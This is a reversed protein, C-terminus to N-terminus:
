WGKISCLLVWDITLHHQQRLSLKKYDHSRPKEWEVGYFKSDWLFPSIEEWPFMRPHLCYCPSLLDVFSDECPDSYDLISKFKSTYAQSYWWILPPRYSPVQSQTRAGARITFRQDHWPRLLCQSLNRPVQWRCAASSSARPEQSDEGPEAQPFPLLLSM